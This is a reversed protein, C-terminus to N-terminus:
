GQHVLAVTAALAEISEITIPDVVLQVHDIRSSFALIREAIEAPTGTIPPTDATSGMLRGDGGPIQVLLAVTRVVEGPDRGAGQLADDLRALIPDLGDPSNDFHSWWQNWWNM